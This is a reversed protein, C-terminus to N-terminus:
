CFQTLHAGLWIVFSNEGMWKDKEVFSVYQCVCKALPSRKHSLNVSFNTPQSFKAVAASALKAEADSVFGSVKKSKWRVGYKKATVSLLLFRYPLMIRLNAYNDIQCFHGWLALIQSICIM